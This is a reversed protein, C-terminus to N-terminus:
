QNDTLHSVPPCSPYRDDTLSAYRTVITLSAKHHACSIIEHDDDDKKNDIRMVVSMAMMMHAIMTMIRIIMTKM